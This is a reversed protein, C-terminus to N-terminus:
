PKELKYVVLYLQTGEKSKFEAPHSKGSLDYCIRLTDGDREYIAPITKDKNPGETGTIDMEKLKAAPNLKLTGKDVTAGVTVSYTNEKVVLKIAKCTEEPLTKGGLEASAPRWVGEISDGGKADASWAAASFLLALASLVFLRILVLLEKDNYITLRWPPGDFVVSNAM